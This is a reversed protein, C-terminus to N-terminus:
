GICHSFSYNVTITETQMISIFWYLQFNKKTSKKTSDFNFMSCTSVFFFIFWMGFSNGCSTEKYVQKWMNQKGFNSPCLTFKLIQSTLHEHKPISIYQWMILNLWHTIYQMKIFNFLNWISSETNSKPSKYVSGKGSMKIVADGIKIKQCYCCCNLLCIFLNQINILFACLHVMHIIFSANIINLDTDENGRSNIYSNSLYSTLHIFINTLLSASM